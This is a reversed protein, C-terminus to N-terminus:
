DVEPDMRLLTQLERESTVLDALTYEDLVGLFQQLARHLAGRLVCQSTLPCGGEGTFCEVLALDSETRRVLAGVNVEEPPHALRMGGHKGRLTEVYGMQGLDFVVKMVHNRSVGYREAIETITALGERKVALYMLVRLAYDTYRTLRM